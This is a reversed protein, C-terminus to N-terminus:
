KNTDREETELIGFFGAIKVFFHLPAEVFMTHNEGDTTEQTRYSPLLRFSFVQKM